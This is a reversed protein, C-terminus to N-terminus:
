ATLQSKILSRATRVPVANGIQKTIQTQNGAFEYEYDRDTFSMAAALEHNKLMRFRIDIIHLSGDINILRGQEAAKRLKRVDDSKELVPDAMAVNCKTVITQLPDNISRIVGKSGTQDTQMIVPEALGINADEASFDELPDEASSIAVDEDDPVLIPEAVGEVLAFREKTTVTDLPQDVNKCTKGSGSGYFPAILPEAIALHGAHATITPTPNDIDSANSKGKMNIMCPKLDGEVMAIGRKQTITGIPEDLSKTKREGSHNVEILCPEVLQSAATTTFSPIPQDVNRPAGGSANSFTFSQIEPQALGIHTGSATITPVPQDISLASCNNRLVVLFPEPWAFKEAGAFIRKMTNDALARKREFISGGKLDWDIIEKAARWPELGLLQCKDAPAHSQPPWCIKKGDSRAILFFRNRTTADGYDAACVTRWEIKFGIAKLAEVWAKFYEGRRSKVPKGTQANVPGWETFEPVNEVVLIKTRIITCWKIVVWPDMRQQDSTPKGGRARSHYTCTPSALLIDLKGEPVLVEPRAGELDACIHRAKPHNRTHTEIAIPWHNVCVLDVDIDEDEELARILATSFGGAGCFLDAALVKRRRKTKPSPKKEPSQDIDSTSIDYDEDLPGIGCPGINAEISNLSDM